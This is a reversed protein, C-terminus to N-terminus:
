FNCWLVETKMEKKKAGSAQNPVDFTHRTWSGLFERYLACDYGSLMFKATRKPHTITALLERHGMEDMEHSYDGTTARTSHVYPPDLYFLTEPLDFKYIVNTAPGEPLILVRRLRNHAEPLGAVANLWASVENNMRSRTRTKTIGTFGKMRGALSQRNRVFFNVARDVDSGFVVAKESDAYEIGSFPVAQVIRCFDKWTDVSQLVRWFNTLEGNIDNVVESVGKHPPFWLSEDDPDRAFLVAGGGFYPECYTLHRPMLSIIWRALYSKGGHYKLPLNIAASM